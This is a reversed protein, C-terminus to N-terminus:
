VEMDVPVGDVGGHGNVCTGGSITAHQGSGCESCMLADPDDSRWEMTQRTTRAWGALTDAAENGDVGSHGPVKVFRADYLRQWARRCATILERNKSAGWGLAVSGIVYESDCYVDVPSTPDAVLELARLVALLEATNNTGDGTFESLELRYPGDEYVVGIGSPGPNPYCSGDTWLKIAHPRAGDMDVVKRGTPDLSAVRSRNTMQTM